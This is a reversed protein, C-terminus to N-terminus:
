SVSSEQCLLLLLYYKHQFTHLRRSSKFVGDAMVIRGSQCQAVGARNSARADLCSTIQSLSSLPRGNQSRAHSYRARRAKLLQQLVPKPLNAAFPRHLGLGMALKGKVTLPVYYRPLPM